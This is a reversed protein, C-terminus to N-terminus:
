LFKLKGQHRGSPKYGKLMEGTWSVLIALMNEFHECTELYAPTAEHATPMRSSNAAMGRQEKDVRSYPAM